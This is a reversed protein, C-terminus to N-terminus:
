ASAVVVRPPELMMPHIRKNRSYLRLFTSTSCLFTARHRAIAKACGLADTPDPHCVMPIGELLPLFPTATLGFAHFLPL